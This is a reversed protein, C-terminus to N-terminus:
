SIASANTSTPTLEDIVFRGATTNTFLTVEANAGVQHALLYAAEAIVLGTTRSQGPETALLELCAQHDLDRRDGLAVLPRTDVILM